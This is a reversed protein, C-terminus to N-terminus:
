GVPLSGVHCAGLGQHGAVMDMQAEEKVHDPKPDGYGRVYGCQWGQVSRRKSRFGSAEGGSDAQIRRRVEQIVRIAEGGLWAASSARAAKTLGDWAFMKLIGPWDATGGADERCAGTNGEAGDRPVRAAVLVGAESPCLLLAARPGPMGDKFCSADGEPSFPASKLPQIDFALRQRRRSILLM